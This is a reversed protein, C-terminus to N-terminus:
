IKKSLVKRELREYLKTLTYDIEKEECCKIMVQALEVKEEERVSVLDIFLPTRNAEKMVFKFGSIQIEVSAVEEFLIYRGPLLKSGWRQENFYSRQKQQELNFLIGQHDIQVSQTTSVPDPLEGTKLTKFIHFSKQLLATGAILPIVYLIIRDSQIISTYWDRDLYLEVLVIVFDIAIIGWGIKQYLERKWYGKEGKKSLKNSGSTLEINYNM